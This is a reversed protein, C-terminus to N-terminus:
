FAEFVGTPEVEKYRDMLWKLKRSLNVNALPLLITFLLGFVSIGLAIGEKGWVTALGAFLIAEATLFFNVRAHFLNDVHFLLERTTDPDFRPYERPKISLSTKRPEDSM